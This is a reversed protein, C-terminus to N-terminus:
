APQGLAIREDREQMMRFLLLQVVEPEDPSIFLEERRMLLLYPRLYSIMLGTGQLRSAAVRIPGDDGGFWGVHYDNLSLGSRFRLKRGDFLRVSLMREVPLEIPRTATEIVLAEFEIRYALSAPGIRLVTVQAAVVLGLLLLYLALGITGLTIGARVLDILPVIVAAVSFWALRLIRASPPTRTPDRAPPLTGSM